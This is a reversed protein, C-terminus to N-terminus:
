PKAFVKDDLKDFFELETVKAELAKKGDRHAVIKRYHKLGDKEQYDTFFVEQVIEKNPEKLTNVRKVLLGTEKYFYLKVERHNKAKVLIGLAPKEGIKIQELMSLDYGKEKLFSLRDLDEAYKQEKMEAMAEKPMDQTKGNFEIWGKDGDIAQTQSFKMGMLEFTIMSKYRNPMQWTDELVFPLKPQGPVLDTTGEVKIRMTRLKAVKAAGGQAAIAKEIIAESNEEAHVFGAPVMCVALILIDRATRM